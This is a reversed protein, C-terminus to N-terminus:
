FWQDDRGRKRGFVGEGGSRPQQLAKLSCLAKTGYDSVLHLMFILRRFAVDQSLNMSFHLHSVAAEESGLLCLRLKKGNFGELAQVTEARSDGRM